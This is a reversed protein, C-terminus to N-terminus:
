AAFTEVCAARVREVVSDWTEGPQRRFLRVTEPYWPTDERGHMWRWDVDHDPLLVWCPKGLSAALHVVATDVSIVLDLTAIIAATDALDGIEAALAEIPAGRAAWAPPPTVAEEQGTGKQLSVFRLNPLNALPALTALSSLSRHADNHHRPNGKWVLGVRPGPSLSALRARWSEALAPEVHLYCANARPDDISARLHLPLSLPSTWYDFDKANALAEQHDVVADIGEVGAVLRRLAPMCAFVVRSAGLAELMPFYRGFQLMDGLGDEQWLLLSKGALPEGQWHACRILKRTAHHIFEAHDYRSEYLPWAEDFRGQSLLLTALGFRAEPYNARTGIAQRYAAESGAFDGLAKLVNGLNYAAREFDPHRALADRFVDAAEDLRELDRLVCGLSNQVEAVDPRLRHAERYADAADALGGRATLVLGLNFHAEAYDPRLHIARRCASEAEGLRKLATLVAAFTNLTRPDEARITLALLCAKEAERAMGSLRLADAMERLTDANNPELKLALQYARLAEPLRGLDKLVNALRIPTRRHGPNLKLVARYAHEADALKGQDHLTRALGFAIEADDPRAAHAHEYLALAADLQKNERLVGALAARADVDDPHADHWARYLPEIEAGRGVARLLTGLNTYADAFDPALAICARWHTEAEDTRHMALLCLGAINHAHAHASPALPADIAREVIHLAPAYHGASCLSQAQAFWNDALPPRTPLDTM